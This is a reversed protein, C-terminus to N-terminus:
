SCDRYCEKTSKVVQHLRKCLVKQRAQVLNKTSTGYVRVEDHEINECLSHQKSQLPSIRAKRICEYDCLAWATVLEIQSQTLHRADM